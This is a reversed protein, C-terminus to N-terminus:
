KRPNILVCLSVIHFLQPLIYFCLHSNEFYQVCRLIWWKLGQAHKSHLTGGIYLSKAGWWYTKKKKQDQWCPFWSINKNWPCIQSHLFALSRQISPSLPTHPWVPTPPCASTPQSPSTYASKIPIQIATSGGFLGYHGIKLLWKWNEWDFCM